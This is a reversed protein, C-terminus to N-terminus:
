RSTWVRQIMMKRYDDEGYHDLVVIAEVKEEELHDVVEEGLDM